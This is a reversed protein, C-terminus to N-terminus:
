HQYFASGAYMAGYWKVSVYCPCSHYIVYPIISSGLFFGAPALCVFSQLCKEENGPYTSYEWGGCTTAWGVYMVWAYCWYIIRESEGIKGSVINYVFIFLFCNKLYSIINWLKFCNGNIPIFTIMHM